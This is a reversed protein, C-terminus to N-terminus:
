EKNELQSKLERKKQEYARIQRTWSRFQPNWVLKTKEEDHYYGSEELAKKHMERTWRRKEKLEAAPITEPYNACVWCYSDWARKEARTPNEVSENEGDRDPKPESETESARAAPAANKEAPEPELLTKIADDCFRWVIEVPEITMYEGDFHPGFLYRLDVESKAIRPSLGEREAMDKMKKFIRAWMEETVLTRTCFLDDLKIGVALFIDDLDKHRDYSQRYSEGGFFPWLRIPGSKPIRYKVIRDLAKNEQKHWYELVEPRTVRVYRDSWKERLETNIARWEASAAVVDIKGTKSKNKRKPM